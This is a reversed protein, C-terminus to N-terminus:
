RLRDLQEQAWSNGKAAARRYWRVLKWAIGNCAVATSLCGASTPRDPRLERSARVATGVSRRRIMRRYAVVVCTVHSRVQVRRDPGARRSEAGM